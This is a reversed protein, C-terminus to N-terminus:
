QRAGSLERAESDIALLMELVTAYPETNLKMATEARRSLEHFIKAWAQSSTRDPALKQFLRFEGEAAEFEFKRGSGALALRRLLIAILRITLRFTGHADCRTAIASADGRQFGPSDGLLSVLKSYIELGNEDVLRIAEGVSGEALESLERHLSQSGIDIAELARAFDRRGLPRCRIVACRSRITPLLISPSHSVLIFVTKDPPEELLKLFANAASENLEDATDVIAVRYRHDPSAFSFYRKLNRIEDVTIEKLVRGSKPDAPRRVIYISADTLSLIRAVAPHDRSVDLSTPNAPPDTLLFKAIRWALTAKGVGRPGSIMWAHNLRGSLFSDLFIAEARQQGFLVETSRPHPANGIRDSELTHDPTMRM